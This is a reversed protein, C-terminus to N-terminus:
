LFIGFKGWFLDCCSGLFVGVLGWCSGFCCLSLVGVLCGFFWLLVEFLRLCIGFVDCIYGWLYWLLVGGFYGFFVVLGGFYM